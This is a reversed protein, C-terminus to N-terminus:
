IRGIIRGSRFSHQEVTKMLKHMTDSKVIWRDIIKLSFNGSESGVCLYSSLEHRHNEQLEEAGRWTPRTLVQYICTVYQLILQFCNLLFLINRKYIREEINSQIIYLASSSSDLKKKDIEDLKDPYRQVKDYWLTTYHTHIMINHLTHIKTSLFKQM